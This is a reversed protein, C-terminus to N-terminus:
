RLRDSQCPVCSGVMDVRHGRNFHLQTTPLHLHCFDTPAKAGQILLHGLGRNGRLSTGEKTGRAELARGDMGGSQGSQAEGRPLRYNGWQCALLTHLRVVLAHLAFARGPASRGIAQALIRRRRRYHASREDMTPWTVTATARATTYIAWEGALGQDGWSEEYLLDVTKPNEGSTWEDMRWRM